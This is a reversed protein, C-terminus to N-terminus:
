GQGPVAGNRDGQLWHAHEACELADAGDIERYRKEAELWVENVDSAKQARAAYEMWIKLLEDKTM